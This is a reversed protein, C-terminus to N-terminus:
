SNVCFVLLIIHISKFALKFAGSITISFTDWKKEIIQIILNEKGIHNRSVFRTKFYVSGQLYRIIISIFEKIPGIIVEKM